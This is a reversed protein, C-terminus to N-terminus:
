YMLIQQTSPNFIEEIPCRMKYLGIWGSVVAIIPFYIFESTWVNQEVKCVEILTYAAAVCIPISLILLLWKTESLIKIPQIAKFFLHFLLWAAIGFGIAYALSILYIPFVAIAPLTIVAYALLSKTFTLFTTKM